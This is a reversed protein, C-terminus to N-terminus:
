QLIFITLLFSHFHSLIFYCSFSHFHWMKLHKSLLFLSWINAGTDLSPSVTCVSYVAEYAFCRYILLGHWVKVQHPNNKIGVGFKDTQSTRQDTTSFSNCLTTRYCYASYIRTGSCRCTLSFGSFNPLKNIGSRAFLTVSYQIIKQVAIM